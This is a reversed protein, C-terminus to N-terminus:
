KNEMIKIPTLNTYGELVNVLKEYYGSEYFICKWPDERLYEDFYVYSLARCGGACYRFYKCNACKENVKKLDGLTTCVESLYRGENLLEHLSQKRVDGLQINLEEYKGSIQLCPYVHGNAGIAIMGRNGKCVPISDRYKGETIVVPKIEYSRGQPFIRVFQWIDVIMKHEKAIYDRIFDLMDDYYEEFGLSQGNANQKWRPVETTKIIRMEKVGLSDFYEATELLTEINAKWVNTQIKVDFGNEVCLKIANIANEEANDNGRMWNHYGLGDFSIKILPNSRIMKLKILAAKNIFFGNTNLEEVFMDNKHIEFVIDFFDPHLMPEGGTLTIAHIGADSMQGILDKAEDLTFIDNSRNNDVANFCHKCNYNCRNTIEWIAAPFYRNDCEKYQFSDFPYEGKECERIAGDMVLRKVLESEPIDHNSDCMSLIEFMERDLGIANRQGKMYYCYPVLKFSRLGINPNLRYYM